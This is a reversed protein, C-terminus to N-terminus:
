PAPSDGGGRAPPSVNAINVMGAPDNADTSADREPVVGQVDADRSDDRGEGGAEQGPPQRRIKKKKRAAMKPRDAPGRESGDENQERSPRDM